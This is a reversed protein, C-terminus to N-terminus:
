KVLCLMYLLIYLKYSIRQDTGKQLCVAMKRLRKNHVIVPVVYGRWVSKQNDDGKDDYYQSDTINAAFTV